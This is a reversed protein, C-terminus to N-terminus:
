KLGKKKEMRFTLNFFNYFFYRLIQSFHFFHKLM